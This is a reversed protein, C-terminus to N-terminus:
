KKVWRELETIADDALYNCSVETTTGDGKTSELKIQELATYAKALQEKLETNEAELEVCKKALSKEYPETPGKPLYSILEDYKNQLAANEAELKNLTKLQSKILFEREKLDAKLDAIKANQLVIKDKLITFDNRSKVSLMGSCAKLHDCAIQLNSELNDNEKNLATIEANQAVIKDLAAQLASYEVVHTPNVGEYQQFYNKCDEFTRMLDIKMPTYSEAIAWERPKNEM